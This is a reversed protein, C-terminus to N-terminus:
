TDDKNNGETDNRKKTEDRYQRKITCREREREGGRTEATERRRREERVVNARGRGEQSRWRRLECVKEEKGGRQERASMEGKPEKGVWEYRKGESM